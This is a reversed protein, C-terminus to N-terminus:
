GVLLVRMGLQRGGVRDLIQVTTQKARFGDPLSQSGRVVEHEDLKLSVPELSVSAQAGRATEGAVSIQIVGTAAAGSRAERTLVLDYSLRGGKAEIQAARVEVSGGRPDPPLLGVVTQLEARLQQAEDRAANLGADAGKKDTLASQLRRATEDLEGQLRARDADAKAYASQLHESEAASLRPPLHREQVYVVGGAGIAIGSLLLLLWRPFRKRSRRRSGYPDFPIPKSHGLM